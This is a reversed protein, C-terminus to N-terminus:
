AANEGSVLCAPIEFTISSVLPPWHCTTKSSPQGAASNTTVMV